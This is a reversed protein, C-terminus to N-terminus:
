KVKEWPWRNEIEVTLTWGLFTRVLVLAALTAVNTLSTDLAVTRIIDAAVLVELGLLLSRGISARYRGYAAEVNQGMHLLWGVTVILIFGVMITVALGEIGIAAMEIWFRAHEM